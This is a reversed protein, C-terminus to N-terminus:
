VKDFLDKKREFNNERFQIIDFMIFNIFYVLFLKFYFLSAPAKQKSLNPNEYDIGKKFM